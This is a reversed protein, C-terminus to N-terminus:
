LPQELATSRLDRDEEQSTLSSVDDDDSPDDEVPRLRSRRPPGREVIPQGYIVRPKSRPPKPQGEQRPPTAEEAPQPLGAASPSSTVPPTSSSGVAQHPPSRRSPGGATAVWDATDDHDLATGCRNGSPREIVNSHTRKDEPHAAASSSETVFTGLWHSAVPSHPLGSSSLVSMGRAPPSIAAALQPLSADDETPRKPPTPPRGDVSRQLALPSRARATSRASATASTTILSQLQRQQQVSPSNSRSSAASSSTQGTAKAVGGHRWPPLTLSPMARTSRPAGRTALQEAASQAGKRRGTAAIQRSNAMAAASEAGEAAGDWMVVPAGGLGEIPDRHHGNGNSLLETMTLEAATVRRQLNGILLTAQRKYVEFEERVADYAQQLEDRERLAQILNQEIAERAALSM